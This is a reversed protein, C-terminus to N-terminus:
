KQLHLSQQQLAGSVVNREVLLRIKPLRSEEPFQHIMEVILERVSKLNKHTKAVKTATLLLSMYGEIGHKFGTPHKGGFFGFFHDEQGDFLSLDLQKYLQLSRRAYRLGLDLDGDNVFLVGLQYWLLSTDRGLSAARTLSDFAQTQENMLFSIHGHWEFLVGQQPLTRSSWIENFHGEGAILADLVQHIGRLDRSAGVELMACLISFAETSEISTQAWLGKLLSEAGVVDGSKYLLRAAEYPRM